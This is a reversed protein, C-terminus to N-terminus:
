LYSIDHLEDICLADDCSVDIVAIYADPDGDRRYERVMEAADHLNFSGTGWDNDDADRMVAYWTKQEM